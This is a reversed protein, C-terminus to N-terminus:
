PRRLRTTENDWPIPTHWARSIIDVAMRAAPGAVCSGPGHPQLDRRLSATVPLVDEPRSRRRCTCECRNTTPGPVSTSGIFGPSGPTSGGSRLQVQPRGRLRTCPPNQYLGTSPMVAWPAVIMMSTGHRTVHDVDDQLSAGDQRVQRVRCSDHHEAPCREGDELGVVEMNHFCMDIKNSDLVKIDHCQGRAAICHEAWYHAGHLEMYFIHDLTLNPQNLWEHLVKIVSEEPGPLGSRERHWLDGRREQAKAEPDGHPTSACDPDMAVNCVDDSAGCGVPAILSTTPEHAAGAGSPSSM